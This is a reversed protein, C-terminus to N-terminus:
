GVLVDGLEKGQAHRAVLEEDVSGIQLEDSAVLQSRPSGTVDDGIWPMARAMSAGSRWELLEAAGVSFQTVSGGNEEGLELAHVFARGSVMSALDECQTLAVAAVLQDLSQIPGEVITGELVVGDLANELGVGSRAPEVLVRGL